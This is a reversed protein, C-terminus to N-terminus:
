ALRTVTLLASAHPRLAFEIETDGFYDGLAEGTWLDEVRYVNASTAPLGLAAFGTATAALDEGINIVGLATWAGPAGVAAVWTAVCPEAPHDGAGHPITCSGSGGTCTCNGAYSVTTPAVETRANLALAKPNTLYGLSVGDLPLAGASSLPYRGITWLTAITQGRDLQEQPAGAAWWEPGMPIMDLDPWTKNLGHLGQATFNGAIFVAQQLGGGAFCRALLPLPCAPDRRLGRTLIARASGDASAPRPSLSM